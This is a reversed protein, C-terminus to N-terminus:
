GLDRCRPFARLCAIRILHLLFRFGDVLLSAPFWPLYKGYRSHNYHHDVTRLATTGSYFLVTCYQQVQSYRNPVHMAILSKAELVEHHFVGSCHDEQIYHISCCKHPTISYDQLRVLISPTTSYCLVTCYKLDNRIM